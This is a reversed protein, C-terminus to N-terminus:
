RVDPEGQTPRLELTCAPPGPGEVRVHIVELQSGLGLLIGEALDRHLGCAIKAHAHSALSCPPCGLVMGVEASGDINQVEFGHQRLLAVLHDMPPRDVDAAAGAAARRAAQAGVEKASLGEAAMELLLVALREYPSATGWTGAVDAALRYQLAPRGPGTRPAFEEVLLEAQCLKALHQRIANHNLGFREVLAAVRVPVGAKAVDKFIAFRTPNGLAHAQRQLRAPDDPGWDPSGEGV